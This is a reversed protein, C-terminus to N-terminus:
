KTLHTEVLQVSDEICGQCSRLPKGTTTGLLESCVISNNQSMFDSVIQRSLAYTAQKSKPGNLNATSNVLGAVMIAGSIAGCTGQSGGMGLGFGESVKFLTAEDIGLEKSFACVVSQSCNYGKDHLSIALEQKTM